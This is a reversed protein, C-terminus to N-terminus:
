LIILWTIMVKDVISNKSKENQDAKMKCIDNVFKSILRSKKVNATSCKEDQEIKEVLCNTYEPDMYSKQKEAHQCNSTVESMDEVDEDPEENEVNKVKINQNDQNTSAVTYDFYAYQWWSKFLCWTGMPLDDGPM